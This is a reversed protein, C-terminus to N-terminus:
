EAGLYQAFERPTLRGKLLQQTYRTIDAAHKEVGSRTIPMLGYQDAIRRATTLYKEPEKAQESSRMLGYIAQVPSLAPKYYSAKGRVAQLQAEQTKHIATVRKTTPRQLSIGLQHATLESALLPAIPSGYIKPQPVMQLMFGKAEAFEEIPEPMFAAYAAAFPHWCLVLQALGSASSHELTSADIFVQRLEQECRWTDLDQFNLFCSLELKLAAQLVRLDLQGKPFAPLRKLAQLSDGYRGLRLSALGVIWEIIGRVWHDNSSLTKNKGLDLARIYHQEAVARNFFPTNAAHSLQDLAETIPRYSQAWNYNCAIPEQKDRIGCLAEILQAVGQAYELKGEMEPMNHLIGLATENDGLCSLFSAKTHEFSLGFKEYGVDLMPTKDLLDLAENFDGLYSLTSIFQQITQAYSLPARLMYQALKLCEECHEVSQEYQRLQQLGVVL